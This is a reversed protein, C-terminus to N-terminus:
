ALWWLQNSSYLSSTNIFPQACGAGEVLQFDALADCRVPHWDRFSSEMGNWEMGLPPVLAAVKPCTQGMYSVKM